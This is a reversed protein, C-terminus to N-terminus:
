GRIHSVSLELDSKLEAKYVSHRFVLQVGVQAANHVIQQPKEADSEFMASM